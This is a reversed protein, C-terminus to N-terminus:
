RYAYYTAYSVHLRPLSLEACVAEGAYTVYPLVQGTQSESQNSLKAGRLILYLTINHNLQGLSSFGQAQMLYPKGAASRFALASDLITTRNWDVYM